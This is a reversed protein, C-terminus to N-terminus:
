EADELRFAVLAGDVERYWVRIPDATTMHETLHGPPFEAGNELRGLAFEILRGAGDRLTFGAVQDLGASDVAVVVGVAQEGDPADPDNATGGALLAATGTVLVVLLLAAAFFRFTRSDM